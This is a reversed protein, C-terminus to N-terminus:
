PHDEPQISETVTFIGNVVRVVFLSRRVDGFEDFSFTGGVGAYNKVDLLEEVLGKEDGNTARLASALVQVADYAFAAGYTPSMGYTDEYKKKFDLYEPTTSYPNFDSMLLMGEVTKGGNWILDESISWHSALIQKDWDAMRLQQTIFAADPGTTILLVTDSESDTIQQAIDQFDPNSSSSYHIEAPIKGGLSEYRSRFGDAYTQTFSLNDADLVVTTRPLALRQYAYEAMTGSEVSNVLIMRFFLDDLGQLKTTSATPSLMLVPSDKLTDLSAMAEVSTMNGVIAVVDQEMLKQTAEAAGEATGNNNEVIMNLLHGNVGGTKNLENVALLAGNRGEVGLASNKGTLGSTFGIKIARNIECGSLLISLVLSVGAVIWLIPVTKKIHWFNNKDMVM